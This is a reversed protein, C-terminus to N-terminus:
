ECTTEHLPAFAAWSFFNFRHKRHPDPQWLHDYCDAYCHGSHCTEFKSMRIEFNLQSNKERFDHGLDLQTVDLSRLSDVERGAKGKNSWLGIYLNEM